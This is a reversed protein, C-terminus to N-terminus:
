ITFKAFERNITQLIYDRDDAMLFHSGKRVHNTFGGRTLEGWRVSDEASVWPDLDGIFSSIPFPFPEVPQHKYNSAMEFEARITPLLVKRLKPIELMRDAAPTDFQRIIDAFVDDPQAYPPAGIDFQPHLMMDYVLNDEFAGRRKLLQPPRVGCAFAHKIFRASVEPLACLTAFMTLGGLCHGFFAAPRDLWGVMESLLRKVFTDLDDVATEKIRTGRGPPEIAVLEVSDDLLHSWTRFSVVGGGAYPFCFLRAGAGPNPRPAILWKGSAPSTIEGALSSVPSRFNALGAGNGKSPPRVAETGEVDRQAHPQKGNAALAVTAEVAANPTGVQQSRGGGHDQDGTMRVETVRSRTIAPAAPRARLPAQTVPKPLDLMQLATVSAPASKPKTLDAVLTGSSQTILHDALQNITPGKILEAVSVPFAFENELSNSLTVAMLSDVGLENLPQDPNIAEAFGLKAMIHERLSTLLQERAQNTTAVFPAALAIKTDDSKLPGAAERVSLLEALFPPKGVKGAYTPWDAIAVAIQDVDRHMLQDFLQMARDPSVFEVGLSSWMAEGRAGSVTALGGGSWACWNITMAPLGAARRYTMLSDLFASSATYNAQGASGLLSLLSSKLIFFDLELSKTYEHLLWSGYVKPEFLRAFRDWDLQALIGDDLVGASQVVGKLPPLESSITEILQRVDKDRSIDVAAVHVKAGNMEAASFIKQAAEARANRGTLVLHKAGKGILWKAVSCGLMGLGGAVLYTADGRVPPLRAPLEALTQKVFRAVMRRGSATIAIQTEGDPQLLEAALLQIDPTQHEDLELDILGGWISPYEIAITRGLGWLPAQVPDIYQGHGETKQTNATVFWLRRDPQNTSRTEALAHLIALAGRCMMESGNKLGEPTLDAIAPADLGWLYLVGACPRTESVTFQELLRRFDQPQRENVTWTRAGRRACGHDRYVLHCHHGSGELRSALAVGVGKADAFILWSAPARDARLNAAAKASRHWAARYFVDDSGAQPQRVKALPLLRVTLGELEAVPREALDYIRIDIMQTNDNEVSRLKTYVWARDIGDQYCRFGKLSVPLYSSRGDSKGKEAAELVLPYTHLCADLFAPHLLYQSQALGDPLQVKTLVEHQGLYVEQVGRFSPGYELGLRALREYFEAIPLTQQCRCRVQAPSFVPWSPGESTRLTGTMHTHWVEADETAASVLRFSARDSKLPEVLVRVFRDEGNAFPMAQHHMADDFSVRPTGFHMRGVVTAAELEATTPLVVTGVVKHDSLYAAHQVGYRAQYRLEKGTPNLRTGLLPHSPEAVTAPRATWTPDDEIWHRRRQFPYTPLPIRRWCADTHVAMWDIKHGALYLAVLMETISDANSKQRNLTAAWTASKANQGLCVQALPLLVPHPGVELFTRCELKALAHMGDRFRVGERLHRSWYSKDPAATMLGGTLNSILPLKPAKYAIQGAVSELDALIPETRPSHFANSIRLHRYIIAQRDLEEALRRLADRDGSVVTNLPGNMAAVALEPAIKDILARVVSEEALIAAMAGGSPLGRMLAGRATILRMADKLEMVDAVCAATFEGLSHGIVAAPTIGFSKLLETLAYEVALLAPQTYDTRNVLAEDGNGNFIVDLLGQELYPQALAHCHDLANRFVSHTHYLDAAMGAYQSGQGSFMFAIPSNGTGQQGSSNEPVTRLWAALQKKLDAISRAPAAFRFGFQSRSVNTTYCLDAIPANPNDNLWNLLQEVRAALAATSKASLTLLCPWLGPSSSDAAHIPPAEELVAFTNTGGIGLSNLGARRPTDAGPFDRLEANVYFPSSAFDIAPNPTQYNISPPMRKHHLVLATKILGAIGAAQEPHGINAKVSGVACYQKRKTERRFAMTLAEIELPDGVITGTSHCEIYGISDASVGASALADVVAQAQQGLSPATYSGKGAGDNNAATGKIVAYIHDRDAVARQLPKLLVAGVGSGFITGQGVADFPRCHGDLSHLNRKEALYGAVQPIRVVSGGALMMDCDNIRLTQCAQHVAVLSSSCASQITFSPGTLNLKFSVRTSLFDKDNNIHPLSATQGPLDAHHLKALLYSTVVGGGTSLVGVKGPYGAPDYGANECAEWCVELFLRQQPDMLAADKPSYGFFSADFMEVNRLIPAAKVYSPNALLTPDIGAAALERDAFFTVSEVGDCLNKWYEEATAAGPFRCSLGIIAIDLHRWPNSM